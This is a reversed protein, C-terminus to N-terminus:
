RFAQYKLSWHSYTGPRDDLSMAFPRSTRAAISPLWAYGVNLVGGRADYIIGVVRASRVAFSNGNRLSGSRVITGPIASTALSSTASLGSVARSTGISATVSVSYHHYGAPPTFTALFPTRYLSRLNDLLGSVTKRALV